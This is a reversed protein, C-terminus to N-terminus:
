GVVVDEYAYRFRGIREYRMTLAAALALPGVRGAFMLLITTVRSGPTLDWTAGMTLGVTNFASVAEFMYRLFDPSRGAETEVVALSLIGATMIAFGIVFLGIARQITENPVSRSAITVLQQGRLRSWAVLVILAITTTKLGGAMSGPSGGVSMLLITFFNSGVSANAYDINNYGATRATISLFLANVIKDSTDLHGLVKDHDLLYYVGWGVLILATTTALVLRSHLSLRFRQKRWRAKQFLYLEELT